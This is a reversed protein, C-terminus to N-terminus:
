NWDNKVEEFYIERIRAIARHVQVKLAGVTTNRIVAIDEYKMGQLKSMVLLERQHAPLLALAQQMRTERAQLEDTHAAREDERSHTEPDFADHIEPNERFHDRVRNRAIQFLWIRFVGDQKFSHRYKMVRIFADQTLDRSAERDLTCSLFYNYLPKQYRLFLTELHILKDQQVLAMLNEDSLEPL